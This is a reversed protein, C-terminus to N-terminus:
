CATCMPWARFGSSPARSRRPLTRRSRSPFFPEQFIVDAAFHTVELDVRVPGTAAADEIRQVAEDAADRMLDFVATVRAQQLAPNVVARRWRWTEGNAVFISSGILDQLMYKILVSKPFDVAREVLVERILDPERVTYACRKASGPIM